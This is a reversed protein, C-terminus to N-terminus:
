GFGGGGPFLYPSAGALPYSRGASMEQFQSRSPPESAPTRSRPTCMPPGSPGAASATPATASSHAPPPSQRYGVRASLRRRLSPAGLQQLFQSSCRSRAPAPP